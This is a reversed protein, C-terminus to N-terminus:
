GMTHAESKSGPNDGISAEGHQIRNPLSEGFPIVEKKSERRNEEETECM